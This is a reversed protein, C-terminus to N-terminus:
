DLLGHKKMRYRLADRSIGLDRAAQSQNGSHRDLADTILRREMDELKIPDGPPQTGLASARDVSASLLSGTRLRPPLHEPRLETADPNLILAREVVNRLERVNGPWEYTMMTELAAPAIAKINHGLGEFSAIFHAALMPVDEIHERLPPVRISIVNLRHYLDARFSGARVSAELDVNTAGILRANSKLEQTGGVRRFSKNGLLLLLKAQGAPPLEGIEDLMITGDDATEFLGRKQEFAGTFAGREHGFLESELLQEPLAACNLQCFPKTARPSNAHIARAVVEKGAGSEGDILVTGADSASLRAVMARIEEMPGSEGIIAALASEDKPKRAAQRAIQGRVKKLALAREVCVDLDEFKFPKVLFDLAGIKMAEVACDVSAHASMMIVAIDPDVALAQRLVEIGDIGPLRVDLVIADPTRVNISEVAIEGTEAALVEYGVRSLHEKLSWRLLKEDDVVLVRLKPEATM